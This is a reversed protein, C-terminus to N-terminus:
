ERIMNIKLALFDENRLLMVDGYLVKIVDAERDFERDARDFQEWARILILPLIFGYFVGFWEVFGESFDRDDPTAFEPYLTALWSLGVRPMGRVIAPYAADLIIFVSISFSILITYFTLPESLFTRFFGVIKSWISGDGNMEY